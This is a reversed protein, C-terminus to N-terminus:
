DPRCLSEYKSLIERQNKGALFYFDTQIENEAYLYSGYAPIDCCIVPSDAAVLIGYGKDSLVFPLEVAQSIYRGSGSPKM